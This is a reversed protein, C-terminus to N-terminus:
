LLYSEFTPAPLSDFETSTENLNGVQPTKLVNGNRSRHQGKDFVRHNVRM